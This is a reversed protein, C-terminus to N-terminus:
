FWDKKKFWAIQIAAVLIMVFAFTFFADQSESGPIGGINVGFLGTFFTLPMFIVTILSLVYMNRNLKETLSSTLEDHLIKSRDRAENIEEIMHTINDYNEKFHRQAWDDIWECELTSLKRIVEKQPSLYRIFITSQTRIRLLDERLKLEKTNM